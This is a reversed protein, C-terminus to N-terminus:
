LIADLFFFLYLYFTMCFLIAMFFAMFHSELFCFLCFGFKYRWCWSNNSTLSEGDSGFKQYFKKEYEINKKKRNELLFM